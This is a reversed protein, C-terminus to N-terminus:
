VNLACNNLYDDYQIIFSIFKFDATNDTYKKVICYVLYKIKIKKQTKKKKKYRDM